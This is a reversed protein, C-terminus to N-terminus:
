PFTRSCPKVPVVPAGNNLGDLCSKLTEQANRNADNAFTTQDAVLSTNTANCLNTIAGGYCLAFANDDVFGHLINLKMIAFQVSLMYAANVGDANLLWSKLAAKNAALGSTFDRNSGDFNVLKCDTLEVFDEETLLSQGNRNSWFGLGHGGSPVTCYNGFDISQLQGNVVNVPVSVLTSHFWNLENPTGETFTYPNFVPDLTSWQVSGSADTLQTAVNPTAGDLPNITIPWGDLFQEGPDFIGNANFDYFISANLLGQGLIVGHIEPTPTSTPNQSILDNQHQVIPQTGTHSEISAPSYIALAVFSLVALTFINILKYQRKM